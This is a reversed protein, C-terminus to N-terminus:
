GGKRKKGELPYLCDHQADYIKEYTITGKLKNDEIFFSKYQATSVSFVEFLISSLGNVWILEMKELLCKQEIAGSSWNGEEGGFM